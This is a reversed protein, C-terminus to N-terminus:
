GSVAEHWLADVQRHLADLPGSNDILKDALQKKREIPLQSSIRLRAEDTTIGDRTILRGLQTEESTHVLWVEDCLSQMDAEYLLPIDLVIAPEGAEAAEAIRAKIIDYVLPHVIKNLKKRSKADSFVLKGLKKRDLEGAKFFDDGFAMCIPELAAGGKKTLDRSIEDADIVAAGLARLRSLVASKGMAINGTLGITNM